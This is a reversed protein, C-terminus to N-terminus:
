LPDWHIDTPSCIGSLARNVSARLETAASDKLQWGIACTLCVPVGSRDRTVRADLSYILAEANPVASVARFVRLLQGPQNERTAFTLTQVRRLRSRALASSCGGYALYPALRVGRDQEERNFSWVRTRSMMPTSPRLTAQHPFAIGSEANLKEMLTAVITEADKTTGLSAILVFGYGGIGRCCSRVVPRNAELGDAEGATRVITYVDQFFHRRDPGMICFYMPKQNGIPRLSNPTEMATQSFLMLDRTTVRALRPLFGLHEQALEVRPGPLLTAWDHLQGQASTSPPEALQAARYVTHALWGDGRRAVDYIRWGELYQVPYRYHAGLRIVRDYQAIDIHPDSALIALFRRTTEMDTGAGRRLYCHHTLTPDMDWRDKAEFVIPVLSAKKNTGNLKQELQARTDELRIRVFAAKDTQFRILVGGEPGLVRVCALDVDCRGRSENWLHELAYEMARPRVKGRLVLLGTHDM